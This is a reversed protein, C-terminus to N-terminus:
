GDRVKKLDQYNRKMSVMLIGIVKTNVNSDDENLLSSLFLDLLRQKVERVNQPATIYEITGSPVQHPYNLCIFELSAMYDNPLGELLLNYYKKVVALATYSFHTSNFGYGCCSHIYARTRHNKRWDKYERKLTYLM